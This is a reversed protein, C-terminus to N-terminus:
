RVSGLTFLIRLPALWWESGAWTILKYRYTPICVVGRFFRRRIANLSISVVKEAPIWLIGWVKEKVGSNKMTESDHFETRVFGPALAQVRVGKKRVDSQVSRSFTIIYAKTGTYDAAGAGAFFGAASAINILFGRHRATMPLLAARSLRMTALCHVQIMRTELEIDVDPFERNGGFGASNVMFELNTLSEIRKEVAKLADEKSVDAAMTEVRIGYKESLETALQDLRDKRRAVLFLDHGMEAFRRAYIAGFGSSAGSIASVLRNTEGIPGDGFQRTIVADTRESVSPKEISM